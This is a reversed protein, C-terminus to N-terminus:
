VDLNKNRNQKGLYLLCSYCFGMSDKRALLITVAVGKTYIKWSPFILQHSSTIFPMLGRKESTKFLDLFRHIMTSFSFMLIQFSLSHHTIHAAHFLPFSKKHIWYLYLFLLKYTNKETESPGHWM